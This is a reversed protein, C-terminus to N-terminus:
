PTAGLRNNPAIREELEEAALELAEAEKGLAQKIQERQEPSLNLRISERKLPKAM